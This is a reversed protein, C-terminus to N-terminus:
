RAANNYGDIRKKLLAKGEKGYIPGPTVGVYTILKRVVAEDVIGEVAASIVVGNTM